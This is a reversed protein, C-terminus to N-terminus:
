YSEPEFPFATGHIKGRASRMKALASGKLSGDFIADNFEDMDDRRNAWENVIDNYVQRRTKDDNIM